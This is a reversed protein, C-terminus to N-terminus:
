AVLIEAEIQAAQHSIGAVGAPPAADELAASAAPLFAPRPEIWRAPLRDILTGDRRVLEFSGDDYEVLASCNEVWDGTNCYVLGEVGLIRPSHIHGCIIGHCRHRRVSDLWRQEFQSVHRVLMKVRRKIANCFAYPDRTGGRLRNVLWNASLLADYAISSVFSLWPANREVDDFQDGHTVLFRRRDATVHVFEDRVDVLKLVGFHELFPRLFSDHNGPTYFLRTGSRRLSLLRKLIRDYVPQWRWRRKLKWGDIFDGVVYLYEPQYRDLFKLFEEAQSHKCGLHVDSVFLSRVDLRARGPVTSM